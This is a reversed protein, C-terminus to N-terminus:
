YWKLPTGADTENIGVGTCYGLYKFGNNLEFLTEGRYSGYTAYRSSKNYTYAVGSGSNYGSTDYQFLGTGIDLSGIGHTSTGIIASGLYECGYNQIVYYLSDDAFNQHATNFISYAGTRKVKVLGQGLTSVWVTSDADMYYYPCPLIGTVYFSSTHITSTDFRTWVGNTYLALGQDTGVWLEQASTYPSQYSIIFTINNSPLASNSTDFTNYVVQNFICLGNTTGIYYSGLAYYLYTINTDPLNANNIPVTTHYVGHHTGYGSDINAANVVFCTVDNAFPKDSTDRFDKPTMYPYTYTGYNFIGQDTAIFDPSIASVNQYPMFQLAGVTSYTILSDHLIYLSDASQMYIDRSGSRGVM